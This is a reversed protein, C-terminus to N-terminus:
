GVSALLTSPALSSGLGFTSAPAAEASVGPLVAGAMGIALAVIGALGLAPGTTLAAVSREADIRALVDAELTALHRPVPLTRLRILARDLDDM